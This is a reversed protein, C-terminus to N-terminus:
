APKLEASQCLFGPNVDAEIGVRRHGNMQALMGPEAIELSRVIM